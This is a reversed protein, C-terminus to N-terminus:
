SVELTITENINQPISQSFKLGHSDSESNKLTEVFVRDTEYWKIALFHIITVASRMEGNKRENQPAITFNRV